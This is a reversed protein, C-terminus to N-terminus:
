RRHKIAYVILLSFVSVLIITLLQNNAPVSDDDKTPTPTIESAPEQTQFPPTEQQSAAQLNILFTEQTDQHAITLIAQQYSSTPKYSLTFTNPNSASVQLQTPTIELQQLNTSLTVQIPNPSDTTITVTHEQQQPTLQTPVTFSLNYPIFVQYNGSSEEQSISAQLQLERSLTDASFAVGSFGAQSSSTVLNYQQSVDVGQEFLQFHTAQSSVNLVYSTNRLPTQASLSIDYYTVEQTSSESVDMEPGPLTYTLTYNQTGNQQWSLTDNSQNIQPTLLASLSNNSSPILTFNTAPMFEQPIKVSVNRQDSFFSLVRSQATTSIKPSTTPHTFSEWDVKVPEVTAAVGFSVMGTPSAYFLITVVLLITLAFM